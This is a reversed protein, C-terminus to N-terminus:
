GLVTNFSQLTFRHQLEREVQNETHITVVFDTLSTRDFWLCNDTMIAEARVFALWGEDFVVRCLNGRMTVNYRRGERTTLTCEVPLLHSYQHNLEDPLKLTRKEANVIYKFFRQFHESM